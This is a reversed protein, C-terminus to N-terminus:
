KMVTMLNKSIKNGNRPLSLVLHHGKGVNEINTFNMNLSHHSTLYMDSPESMNFTFVCLNRMDKVSDFHYLKSCSIFLM